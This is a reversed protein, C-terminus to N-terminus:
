PAPRAGSSSSEEEPQPQPKGVSLLRKVIGRQEIRIVRQEYSVADFIPGRTPKSTEVLKNASREWDAVRAWLGPNIDDARGERVLHVAEDAARARYHQQADRFQRAVARLADILPQDMRRENEKGEEKEEAEEEEEREQGQIQQDEPTVWVVFSRPSQRQPRHDHSHRTDTRDAVSVVGCSGRVALRARLRDM